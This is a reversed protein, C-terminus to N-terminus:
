YSDRRCPLRASRQGCGMWCRDDMRSRIWRLISDVADSQNLDVVESGNFIM